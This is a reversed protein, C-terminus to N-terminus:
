IGESLCEVTGPLERCREALVELLSLAEVAEHGSSDRSRAPIRIDAGESYAHASLVNGVGDLEYSAVTDRHVGRPPAPLTVLGLPREADLRLGLKLRAQAWVSEMLATDPGHLLVEVGKRGSRIEIRNSAAPVFSTEADLASPPVAVWADSELEGDCLDMAAANVWWEHAWATGERLAPEMSLSLDPSLTDAVEIGAEDMGALGLKDTVTLVVVHAGLGFSAEVVEGDGAPDGNVTWAYGAIDDETGPTSDPDSSGAGDLRVITGSANNCEARRDPGASSVPPRNMEPDRLVVIERRETYHQSAAGSLFGHRLPTPEDAQVTGYDRFTGDAQALLVDQEYSDWYDRFEYASKGDARLAHSPGAFYEQSAPLLGPTDGSVDYLVTKWGIWTWHWYLLRSDGGAGFAATPEWYYFAGTVPGRSGLPEGSIPDFLQPAFSGDDGYTLAVTTGNRVFDAFIAGDTKKWLLKPSIPDSLDVAASPADPPSWIVEVSLVALRGSPDLVLREYAEDLDLRGPVGEPPYTEIRDDWLVVVTGDPGVQADRIRSSASGIDIVSRRVLEGDLAQFINLGQSGGVVFRNGGSASLLEYEDYLNYLNFGIADVAAGDAADVLNIANYPLDISVLWRGGVPLVSQIREPVVAAARVLPDSGPQSDILISDTFAYGGEPRTGFWLYRWVGNVVVAPVGENNETWGVAKVSDNEELEHRLVTSGDRVDVVTVGPPSGTGVALWPRDRHGRLPQAARAHGQYFIDEELTAIHVPDSPDGLDFLDVMEHRALALVRGGWGDIIEAAAPKEPLEIRSLLRGTSLSRIETEPGTILILLESADDTLLQTSSPTEFSYVHAPRYPDNLDYFECYATQGYRERLIVGPVGGPLVGYAEDWFQGFRYIIEGTDLDLLNTCPFGAAVGLIAGPIVTANRGCGESTAIEYVNLPDTADLIRTVEDGSGTESYPLIIRRRNDDGGIADRFGSGRYTAWSEVSGDTPNLVFFHGQGGAAFMYPTGPVEALGGTATVPPHFRARMVETLGEGINAPASDPFITAAGEARAAHEMEIAQLDDPPAQATASPSAALLATLCAAACLVQRANM